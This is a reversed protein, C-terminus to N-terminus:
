TMNRIINVRVNKEEFDGREYYKENEGFILVHSVLWTM